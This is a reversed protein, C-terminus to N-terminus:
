RPPPPRTAAGAALRGRDTARCRSGSTVPKFDGAGVTEVPGSRLPDPAMCAVEAVHHGAGQPGVVIDVHGLTGGSVM